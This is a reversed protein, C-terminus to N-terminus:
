EVLKFFSKPAGCIPCVWDDPIDEWLTGPALGSDPDGQEEDYLRECEMCRYKKYEAM